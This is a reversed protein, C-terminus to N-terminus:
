LFVPFAKAHPGGFVTRIGKKRYIKGMVYCMPSNITSGAIFVIDLDDPLFHQPNGVGYYTAYFTEHGMQKCWVSIAQPMVSPMQKTAITHYLRGFWDRVPLNLIEIIGIKM